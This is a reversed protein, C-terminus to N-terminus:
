ISGGRREDLAAMKRSIPNWLVALACLYFTIGGSLFLLTTYVVIPTQSSSCNLRTPLGMVVTSLFEVLSVVAAIRVVKGCLIPDFRSIAAVMGRAVNRVFQSDFMAM